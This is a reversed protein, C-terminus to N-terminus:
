LNQSEDQIMKILGQVRSLPPRVSTIRELENAVKIELKKMPKM